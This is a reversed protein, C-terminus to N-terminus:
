DDDDKENEDDDEGEEDGDDLEYDVGVPPLDSSGDLLFRDFWRLMRLSYDYRTLM